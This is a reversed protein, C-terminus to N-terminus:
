RTEKAFRSLTPTPSGAKMLHAAIIDDWPPVGVTGDTFTEQTPICLVAEDQIGYKASANIRKLVSENTGILM